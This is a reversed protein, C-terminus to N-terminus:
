QWCIQCSSNQYLIKCGMSLMLNWKRNLGSWGGGHIWFVLPPNETKEPMHVDLYLPRRDTQKYMINEYSKM